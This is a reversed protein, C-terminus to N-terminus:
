ESSMTGIKNRVDSLNLLLDTEEKNLGLDKYQPAENSGVFTRDIGNIRAFQSAGIKKSILRSRISYYKNREAETFADKNIKGNEDYGVL